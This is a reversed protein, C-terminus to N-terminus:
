NSLARDYLKVIEQVIIAKFNSRNKLASLLHRVGSGSPVVDSQDGGFVNNTQFLNLPLTVFKNSQLPKGFLTTNRDEVIQTMPLTKHIWYKGKISIETQIINRGTLFHVQYNGDYLNRTRKINPGYIEHIQHQGVYLNNELDVNHANIHHDQDAGFFLNDEITVNLAYIEFNSKSSPFLNNKLVVESARLICPYEVAKFETDILEIKKETLRSCNLMDVVRHTEPIREIPLPVSQTVSETVGGLSTTILAALVFVVKGFM